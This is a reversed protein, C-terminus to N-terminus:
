KRRNDKVKAFDFSNLIEQFDGKILLTLFQDPTLTCSFRDNYGPYILVESDSIEFEAYYEVIKSLSADARGFVCNINETTDYIKEEGYKEGEFYIGLVLVNDTGDNFAFLERPLLFFIAFRCMQCYPIIQRNTKTYHSTYRVSIIKKIKGMFESSEINRVDVLSDFPCESNLVKGKGDNIIAPGSKEEDFKYKKTEKLIPFLFQELFRKIFYNDDNFNLEGKLVKFLNKTKLGIM